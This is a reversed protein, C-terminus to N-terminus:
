KLSPYVKHLHSVDQDLFYVIMQRLVVLVSVKIIQYLSPIRLTKIIEAGLIFTLSLILTESLNTRIMAYIHGFSAKKRNIWALQLSRVCGVVIVIIAIIHLATEINPTVVGRLYKSAVNDVKSEKNEKGTSFILNVLDNCARSKM